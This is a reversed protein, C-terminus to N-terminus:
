ETAPQLRPNEAGARQCYIYLAPKRVAQVAAFDIGEAEMRSLLMMRRVDNVSALLGGSLVLTSSSAEFRKCLRQLGQPFPMRKMRTSSKRMPKRSFASSFTMIQRHRPILCNEVRGKVPRGAGVFSEVPIQVPARRMRLADLASFTSRISTVALASAAAM